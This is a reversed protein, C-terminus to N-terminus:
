KPAASAVSAPKPAAAPNPKPAVAVAAAPAAGFKADITKTTDASQLSTIPFSQEKLTSMNQITLKHAGAKVAALDIPTKGVYVGDVYVKSPQDSQIRVALLAFSPSALLCGSVVVVFVKRM